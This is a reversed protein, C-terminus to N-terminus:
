GSPQPPSKRSVIDLRSLLLAPEPDLIAFQQPASGIAPEVNEQSRIPANRELLVQATKGNANNDEHRGAVLDFVQEWEYWAQKLNERGNPWPFDIPDGTWLFGGDECRGSPM